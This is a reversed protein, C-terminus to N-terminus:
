IVRLGDHLLSLVNRNSVKSLAMAGRSASELLKMRVLRSTEAAFDTDLIVSNAASVNEIAVRLSNLRPEVANKQFTGIRGRLTAVDGIAAKIVARADGADGDDSTDLSGGTKLDSLHYTDGEIESEGLETSSVQDIVLSSSGLSLTASGDLLKQNNFSTTSGIRDVTALIADIQGQNAAREAETTGGINANELVLVEAERLLSSVEELAGAATAARLYQRTVTRTEAELVALESRLHESAVLGAPDDAARNIRLGSVLEFLSRRVALRNMSHFRQATLASLNNRVGFV